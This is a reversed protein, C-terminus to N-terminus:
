ITRPPTQFDWLMHTHTWLLQTITETKSGTTYLPLIDQNNHHDGSADFLSTNSNAWRRIQIGELTIKQSRGFHINQPHHFVEQWDKGAPDQPTMETTRGTTCNPLNVQNNHSNAWRRDVCSNQCNSFSLGRKERFDTINTENRFPQGCHCVRM